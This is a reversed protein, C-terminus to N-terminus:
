QAIEAVFLYNIGILNQTNKKKAAAAVVMLVLQSPKVSAYFLSMVPLVIFSKHAAVNVLAYKLTLREMPKRQFSRCSFCCPLHYFDVSSTPPPLRSYKILTRANQKESNVNQMNLVDLELDISLEEEELSTKFM